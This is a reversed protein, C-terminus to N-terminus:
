YYISSKKSLIVIIVAIFSLIENRLKIYQVDNGSGTYPAAVSELCSKSELTCEEKTTAYELTRWVRTLRLRSYAVGPYSTSELVGCGPLVYERTRWVRVRYYM